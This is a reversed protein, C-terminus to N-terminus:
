DSSNPDSETESVEPFLSPRKHPSDPRRRRRRRAAAGIRIVGHTM